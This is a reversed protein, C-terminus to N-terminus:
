ENLYGENQVWGNEKNLEIESTPVPMLWEHNPWSVTGYLVHTNTYAVGAGPNDSPLWSVEIGATETALRNTRILDFRRKCEGAFECRREKWVAKRFDDQSLDEPLDELGARNRIANVAQYAEDGNMALSVENAAEAYILLADAFRYLLFNNNTNMFSTNEKGLYYDIDVYKRFTPQCLYNEGEPTTYRTMLAWDRREDGSEFARWLDPTPIYLGVVAPNGPFRMQGVTSNIGEEALPRNNAAGWFNVGNGNPACERSLWSGYGAENIAAIEMMSERSFPFAENWAVGCAPIVNQGNVVPDTILSHPSNDIIDKAVNRALEWNSDDGKVFEGQSTRRWGARTLYVDALIIKATWKTIHGDHLADVCHAEAFQLDPIIIESYIEDVDSRPKMFDEKTKIEDVILPMDGYTRVLHFYYLARLARAEGIIANRMSEDMDIHPVNAIVSNARSIGTWFSSYQGWSSMWNHSGNITHSFWATFNDRNVRSTVDDTALDIAPWWRGYVSNSTGDQLMKYVADCATRADSATQYFNSTSIFTPPDERLFEECSVAFISIFLM